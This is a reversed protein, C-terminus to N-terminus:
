KSCHHCAHAAVNEGCKSCTWDHILRECYDWNKGCQSCYEDLSSIENGQSDCYCYHGDVYTKRFTVGDVVVYDQGSFKVGPVQIAYRRVNTDGNLYMDNGMGNKFRYWTVGYLTVKSDPNAKIEDLPAHVDAFVYEEGYKLIGDNTYYYSGDEEDYCRYYVTGDYTTVTDIYEFTSPERIEDFDPNYNAGDMSTTTTNKNPKNQKKTTTEEKKAIETTTSETTTETTEEGTTSEAITTSVTEEIATTSEQSVPIDNKSNIVVASVGIATATVIAVAGTIIASKPLSLFLALLKKM